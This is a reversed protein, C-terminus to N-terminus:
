DENSLKKKLEEYEEYRFFAGCPTKIYLSFINWLADFPYTIIMVLGYLILFVYTLLSAIAFFVFGSMTNRNLNYSLVELNANQKLTWLFM